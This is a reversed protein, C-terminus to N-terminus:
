RTRSVLAFLAGQPDTAQFVWSGDPVEMPGMRITGGNSEVREAAAAIGDVVFYFIWMPRPFQPQKTMMGGMAEDGGAAWLRYVGMPGMDVGGVESWGFQGAYFHFAADGDGAYLEHWGAGGPTMRPLPEPPNEMPRPTMLVFMAGHPDAVMAFRGVEPIDAPQKHVTGGAQELRGCAADVDAVGIYGIWLPRAGAQRPAEPIEMMGAVGRAANSFITYRVDPHGSDAATWGVTREYFSAAAEPDSTMLEYWIFGNAM